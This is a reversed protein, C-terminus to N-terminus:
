VIGLGIGGGAATEAHILPGATGAGVPTLIPAVVPKGIGTVEPGIILDARVTGVAIWNLHGALLVSLRKHVRLFLFSSLMHRQPVLPRTQNRYLFLM